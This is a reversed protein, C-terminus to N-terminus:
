CRPPIVLVVLLLWREHQSPRADPHFCGRICGLGRHGRLHIINRGAKEEENRVGVRVGILLGEGADRGILIITWLHGIVILEKSQGLIYCQQSPETRQQLILRTEAWSGKLRPGM